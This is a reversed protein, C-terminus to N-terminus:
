ATSQKLVEMWNWVGGRCVPSKEREQPMTESALLHYEVAPRFINGM